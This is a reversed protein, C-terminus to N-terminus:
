EGEINQVSDYLECTYTASYLVDLTSLTISKMGIHSEDWLRDSMPDSTIRRWRFLDSNLQDTIDEKGRWVKASLTTVTIESSLIDSTSIIEMRYGLREDIADQYIDSSLLAQAIADPTVRTLLDEISLNFKKCAADILEMNSGNGSGNMLLRWDRFITKVDAEDTLGLGLFETKSM